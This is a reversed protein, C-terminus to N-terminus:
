KGICFDRFIVDLYDEVDIRGTIRGLERAAMRLEEALVDIHFSQQQLAQLFRDLYVTVAELAARHRARTMPMTETGGVRATVQHELWAILEDIGQGTRASITFATLNDPISLPAGFQAIDAKNILLLDHASLEQTVRSDKGDGSGDVVALRLDAEQAKARARRIGEGEIEDPTDRLGATDILTVAYGGLDLHVEILDRTTGPTPSVIAVDRRALANLLSSKGVNPAGLIVITFGDRIIEGRRQDNQHVHIKKSLDAIRVQVGSLLDPPIDEDAFDICAELHAGARILESRWGDYLEKLGGQMQRLALRRQQETEAAILDALGEAETLDLKGNSFAQRTFEGPDAPSLGRVQALRRTMASIISPGGHLHFEAVNEGTFSAPASFWLTLGRDILTGDAAKMNRLSAVRPESPPKGTLEEVAKAAAPGSVRFVSVGARGRASSLAFITRAESM